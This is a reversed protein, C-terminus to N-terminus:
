VYTIDSNYYIQKTKVKKRCEDTTIRLILMVDPNYYIGIKTVYLLNGQNHRTIYFALFAFLELRRFGHIVGFCMWLTIMKNVSSM